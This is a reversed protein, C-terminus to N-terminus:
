ILAKELHAISPEFWRGGGQLILLAEEPTNQEIPSDLTDSSNKTRM